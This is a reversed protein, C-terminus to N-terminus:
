FCCNGLFSRKVLFEEVKVGAKRGVFFHGAEHVLVLVGLIAIFLIIFMNCVIGNM